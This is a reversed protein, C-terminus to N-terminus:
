ITASNLCDEASQLFLAACRSFHHFLLLCSCILANSQRTEEVSLMMKKETHSETEVDESLFHFLVSSSSAVEKILRLVSESFAILCELRKLCASRAVTISLM